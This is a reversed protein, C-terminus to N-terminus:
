GKLWVGGWSVGGVALSHEDAAVFAIRGEVRLGEIAV